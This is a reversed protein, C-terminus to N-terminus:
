IVFELVRFEYPNPELLYIVQISLYHSDATSFVKQNM